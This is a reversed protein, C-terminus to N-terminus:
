QTATSTNANLLSKKLYREMVRTAIRAAFYGHQGYELMVAVVVQPSDVPAFGVFWAHDPNPPNQATGTKGAVTLGAIAASAATGRGSIVDTMALRLQMLQEHTLRFLEKREYTSDAYIHPSAARGDTAIASYFRAMNIVNQANEGQGIALNLAASNINYYRDKGFKRDYYEKATPHPFEPRTEYPLDVGSRDAFGMRIGGAVLNSVGLRLGLQYFYVNCSQAIAQGLTSHGHGGKQWCRFYRGGYYYGGTCPAAMRSDIDVIGAEMGMIATALKWTSAPPYTGKFAKQYMPKRPDLRLSDYYSKSIGGTFRNVDFSPGSYLARVGGSDPELVVVAGQLSDGFLSHIYKQLDLDLTTRLPPPAAAPVDPRVGADRVVRNRADVEVFHLGEQGRLLHEYQREIGDRGIVQGMKYGEFEPQKLETEKIEGTFGVVAAFAEGDPYWRKPATQIILGPFDVRREELVSVDAFKADNFIVAPRQQAARFRRVVLEVHSSDITIVRSLADLATRLSDETPSLLAVSYGPLNEAIIQGHRDLITGRAGPVPVERLRNGESQLVYEASQLVQTRFFATGLAAFMVIFFGRAFRARRTVDNPHYSV